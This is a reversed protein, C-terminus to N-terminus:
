CKSDLSFVFDLRNKKINVSSNNNPNFNVPNKEVGSWGRRESVNGMCTEIKKM